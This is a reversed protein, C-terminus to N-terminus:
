PRRRAETEPDEMACAALPAGATAPSMGPSPGSGSGRIWGSPGSDRGGKTVRAWGTGAQPLRYWGPNGPKSRGIGPTRHRKERKSKPKLCPGAWDPAGPIFRQLNVMSILIRSVRADPLPLGRPAVPPLIQGPPAAARCDTPLWDDEPAVFCVRRHGRQRSSGHCTRRRPPRVRAIPERASITRGRHGDCGFGSRARHHGAPPGRGSRQCRQRWCPCAGRNSARPLGPVTTRVLPASRGELAIRVKASSRVIRPGSVACPLGVWLAMMSPAGRWRRAASKLLVRNERATSTSRGPGM